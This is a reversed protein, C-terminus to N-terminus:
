PRNDGKNHDRLFKPIFGRLGRTGYRIRKQSLSSTTGSQALRRAEQVALEALGTEGLNLLHTAAAQLQHTAEGVRGAAAAQWARDQLRFATVREAASVVDRNLTPNLDDSLPLEVAVAQRILESTGLSRYAMTIEALTEPGDTRPDIALALLIAPEEGAPVNGLGFVLSGNTESEQSGRGQPTIIPSVQWAEHLRVGKEPQFTFVLDRGLLSHLHRLRDRFIIGIRDPRDAFDLSGHSAQALGTLFEDNWETGLGVITFGIGEQSATEVADLCRAEDGYTHGDTLLILHRNLGAPTSARLENLGASLGAYIETGGAVELAQAASIITERNAVTAASFVVRARDSFVVLSLRDGTVMQKTMFEIARKVEELKEGRMSTSRDAVLCIHIPLRTPPVLGTAFATALIYLMQAEDRRPLVAKDTLIELHLAHVPDSM